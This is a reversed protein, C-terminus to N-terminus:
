ILRIRGTLLEQMMGQKIQRAKALKEELATIESDMDSLITAISNKEEDSQPFLVTFSAMDKNTIQNITAGMIENIQRQIIESQFQYFVYKPYKSRYISMFAGFADGAAREDILACKGILQRSGNRVCILIDDKEVIVREPLAMDVYVNDEFVLKGNQINSSRLVLTGFDRVNSPSYTLGTLSRGVDSLYVVDWDEPIVGIDTQKYRKGEGFGPLRRKGTLLEQMAGQKIQRKKAILQELSEIFADMDSLAKAIANQEAKTPPFFIIISSLTERTIGLISTGQNQNKLLSQNKDLFRFLYETTLNESKTYIGTLDQSIAIDCPAIALKGVGTRSVLLLNGKNVVNASSNKVANKTIFRRIESVQQGIIDAGTIWPIDGNWYDEYKTSPTGGHVLKSVVEGLTTIKWDEPIVGVETQKYGPPINGASCEASM